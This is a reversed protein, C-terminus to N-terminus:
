GGKPPHETAKKFVSLIKNPRSSAECPLRGVREVAVIVMGEAVVMVEVAAAEGEAAPIDAVVEVAGAAEVAVMVEVAVGEGTAV